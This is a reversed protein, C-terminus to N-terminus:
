GRVKLRKTLFATITDGERIIRYIVWWYFIVASTVAATLSSIGL